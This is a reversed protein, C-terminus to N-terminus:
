CSSETQAKGVEALIVHILNVLSNEGALIDGSRALVRDVIKFQTDHHGIDSNQLHREMQELHFLVM